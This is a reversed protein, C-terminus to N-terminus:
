YYTTKIAQRLCAKCVQLHKKSVSFTQNSSTNSFLLLHLAACSFYAVWCRRRVRGVLSRNNDYRIDIEIIDIEWYEIIRNKMPDQGHHPLITFRNVVAHAFPPPIPPYNSITPKSKDFRADGFNQDNERELIELYTMESKIQSVLKKESDAWNSMNDDDDGFKWEITM